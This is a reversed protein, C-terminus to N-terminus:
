ILVAKEYFLGAHHFGRPGPPRAHTHANPHWAGGQAACHINRLRPPVSQSVPRQRFTATSQRRRVAEVEDQHIGSYVFRARFKQSGPLCSSSM